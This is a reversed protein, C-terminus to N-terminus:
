PDAKFKASAIKLPGPRGPLNKLVLDKVDGSVNFHWNAPSFLPCKLKLQSVNIISEGGGYYKSIERMKEFSVLWPVIQALNLGCKGSRIELGQNKKLGLSGALEAFTSKGLKGRLEGVGIQNEDYGFNGGTIQLPYPLRGYNASLRINSAAVKVKVNDTDEGLVLKGTASGKLETLQALEKQFDKDDVLRKLIPVLQSLDAKVDTELHFPAVDGVLGLKLRGNEGISNGLRAKLNQGELIGRSIVVQGSADKLDFQIDPIFIEGDRMQGRIIMNDTDGLDSLSNGQAIMSILPVRGGKVVDFIDKVDDNEGALALVVKRTAAVDIQSGKVQLSLPPTGPTIALKASLSLQPSDLALEGLALSVSKKDVQIAANIRINKLNLEEKAYIFKLYPSSGKLDAQLQGPEDTKFDITLNAPADSLRVPSEPFLDAILSQPRIQTLQIQGSGKFTRTNLQGSISINQWFNSKCRISIKRGAPPGELHFNINELELLKRDGVFLNARSNVVQFDLNPIKFEPLTAVLSQIKKALFYSTFPQPTAEAADPKKSLMYDLEASDLRLGAIQVKGLFLPLIKPQIAVSVAKGKVGPPIALDVRDIIVHPHPFYDLILHDFDIEVGALKLLESRVRAKVTQSDVVKPAILVAALLLILVVFTTVVTGIVIKRCRNV